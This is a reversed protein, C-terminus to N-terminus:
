CTKYFVDYKEYRRLHVDLMFGHRAYWDCVKKDETDCILMIGDLHSINGIKNIHTLLMNGIGSSRHSKAVFIYNVFLVKRGDDLIMISCIVYGVMNKDEMCVYMYTNPSNFMNNIEDYTHKLKPYQVLNEFNTYVVYDLKHTKRNIITLQPILNIKINTM